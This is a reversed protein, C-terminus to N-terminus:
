GRVLAENGVPADFGSLCQAAFWRHIRSDATLEPHFSTVFLNGQRAAVPRGDPLRSLVEVEPGLWSIVPARIFVAPIPEDSILPIDLETEFSDLQSGFANRQTEIQMLGLLPQDRARTEPDVDRGLLIMGACTGWIPVGSAALDLIPQRLGFRDILKGITTSEGGPLILGSAGALDEPLRIERAEVGIGQLKKIHEIFAGQLALVGIFAM